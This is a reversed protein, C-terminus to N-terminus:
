ARGSEERGAPAAVRTRARALREIAAVQARFDLGTTDLLVADAARLLPAHARRSDLEDRAVLRRAEEAVEAASPQAVGQERLRRLAREEPACVLFVKLEAGPFVVTGIDRGDAVLAGRSGEARLRALLWDRVAPLAAIASVHANVAPARIEESVDVGDLRARAATGTLEVEAGFADLATRDLGPWREPPIERRLVALTLTRYYAGSDLHRYGLAAAVARATSSKGSGAPGDIAIIIGDSRQM